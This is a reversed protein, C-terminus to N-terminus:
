AAAPKARTVIRAGDDEAEITVTMNAARAVLGAYFPQIVHADVRDEPARGALLELVNAPM